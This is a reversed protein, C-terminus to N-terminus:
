LWVAAAAIFVLAPLYNAVPIDKLGLMRIGLGLILLGGVASLQNLAEPVTLASFWGSLLTLSGQIVLVTGAAFLVGIGTTAALALAAFGDMVSKTILLTSDGSLGDQISGVVTMPGVCFLLSATVFGRVFQGSGVRAIGQLWTGFRELRREIAIIEGTIGGLIIAGVILLPRTGRIVLMVGISLTVLALATFVSQKIKEPLRDGVVLGLLSGATVTATNVWTGFM